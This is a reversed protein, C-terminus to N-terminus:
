HWALVRERLAAVLLEWGPELVWGERDALAALDADLTFNRCGAQVAHGEETRYVTVPGPAFGRLVAYDSTKRIHAGEGIHAEGSV